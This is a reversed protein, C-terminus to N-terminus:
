NLTKELLYSEHLNIMGEINFNTHVYHQSNSSFKKYINKNKILYFTLKAVSQIDGYKVLFGRKHSEVLENVGKVDFGIIPIGYAMSELMALSLGESESLHWLICIENLIKKTIIIQGLFSIKDLVGLTTAISKLNLLEPGSGIFKLKANPMLTLLVKFAKIGFEQGKHKSLTGIMAITISQPIVERISKSFLSLDIGNQICTFASTKLRYYSSSTILLSKSVVVFSMNLIRSAVIFCIRKITDKFINRKSIIPHSHIVQVIPSRIFSLLALFVMNPSHIQIIDFKKSKLIKHFIKLVKFISFYSHYNESALLFSKKIGRYKYDHYDNVNLLSIIEVNHGRDAFGVALDLLVREAGGRRLSHTLFILNM